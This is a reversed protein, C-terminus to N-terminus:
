MDTFFSIRAESSQTCGIPRAQLCQGEVLFVNIYFHLVIIFIHPTVINGLSPKCPSIGKLSQKITILM